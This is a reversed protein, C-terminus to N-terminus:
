HAQNVMASAQNGGWQGLMTYGVLEGIAHHVCLMAYLEQRVLDPSKSRLVLRDGSQYSTFGDLGWGSRWRQAHVTLLEDASAARHDLISTVLRTTASEVVRVTHDAAGDAGV